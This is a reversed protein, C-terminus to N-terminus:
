STTGREEQIQGQQVIVVDEVHLALILSQNWGAKPDVGLLWTHFRSHNHQTDIVLLVLCM